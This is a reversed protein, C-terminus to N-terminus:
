QIRLVGMLFPWQWSSSARMNVKVTACILVYHIWGTISLEGMQGELTTHISDCRQHWRQTDVNDWIRDGINHCRENTFMGAINHPRGSLMTHINYWHQIEVLLVPWHQLLLLGVNHLQPLTTWWRQPGVNLCCEPLTTPVNHCCRWGVNPVLKQTMNLCPKTFTTVISSGLAPSQDQSSSVINLCCQMLMADVNSGLM